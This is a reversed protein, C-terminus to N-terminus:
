RSPVYGAREAAAADLFYVRNEPVIRDGDPSGISYYKKGRSSAVFLMGEPARVTVTNTLLPRDTIRFHGGSGTLVLRDGAFLRVDGSLTGELAGDRIGDIRVVGVRPRTDPRLTIPTQRSLRSLGWSAGVLFGLLLVAAIWLSLRVSQPLRRLLSLRM